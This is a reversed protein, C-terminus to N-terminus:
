LFVLQMAGTTKLVTKPPLKGRLVSMSASHSLNQAPLALSCLVSSTGALCGKTGPKFHEGLQVRGEALIFCRGPTANHCVFVCCTDFSHISVGKFQGDVTAHASGMIVVKLSSNGRWQQGEPLYVCFEDAESFKAVGSQVATVGTRRLENGALVTVFIGNSPDAPGQYQDLLAQVKTVWTIAVVLVGLHVQAKLKCVSIMLVRGQHANEEAVRRM